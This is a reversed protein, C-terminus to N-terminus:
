IPTTCRSYVAGELQAIQNQLRKEAKSTQAYSAKLSDAGPTNAEDAARALKALEKNAPVLETLAEQDIQLIADLENCTKLEEVPVFQDRLARGVVKQTELKGADARDLIQQLESAGMKAHALKPANFAAAVGFLIARRSAAARPSPAEPVLAAAQSLMLVLTISSAM